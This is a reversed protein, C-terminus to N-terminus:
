NPALQVKGHETLYTPAIKLLFGKGDTQPSCDTAKPIAQSAQPIQM